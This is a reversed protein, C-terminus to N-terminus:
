LRCLSLQFTTSQTLAISKGSETPELFRVSFRHKSGSIEAYCTASSPLRVRVMQYPLSKELQETYNGSTTQKDIFESSGRIMKLLLEITQRVPDLTSFWRKQDTQRSNFNSHLWLNFRPLDFDCTGGPITSRQRIATLLEDNKLETGPATNMSHINDILHELARLISGLRDHDVNPYSMLHGLNETSRELEKLLETRIDGRSFLDLIDLLSSVFTRSGWIDEQAIYYTSQRFLHELKLMMRI